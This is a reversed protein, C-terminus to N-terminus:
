KRLSKFHLLCCYQYGEAKREENVEKRDATYLPIRKDTSPPSLGGQPSLATEISLTKGMLMTVNQVLLRASDHRYGTESVTQWGHFSGSAKKSSPTDQHAAEVIQYWVRSSLGCGDKLTSTTLGWSFWASGSPLLHLHDLHYLLSSVPLTLIWISSAFFSPWAPKAEIAISKYLEANQNLAHLSKVYMIESNKLDKTWLYSM